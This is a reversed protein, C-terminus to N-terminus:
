LITTSDVICYLIRYNCKCTYAIHMYCQISKILLKIFFLESTSKMVIPPAKTNTFISHVAADVLLLIKFNM